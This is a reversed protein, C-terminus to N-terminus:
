MWKAAYGKKAYRMIFSNLGKGSIALVKMQEINEKGASQYTYQYMSGDGFQVIVSDDEIKYARINSNGGLNKYVQM